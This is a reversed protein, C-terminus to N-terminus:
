TRGRRGRRWLGSSAPPAWGAARCSCHLVPQLLLLFLLLLLLPISPKHGQLILPQRNHLLLRPRAVLLLLLLM